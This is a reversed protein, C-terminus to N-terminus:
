KLLSQSPNAGALAAFSFDFSASPVAVAAAYGAAVPVDVVTWQSGMRRGLGHVIGVGEAKLYAEKRTWAHAFAENRDSEPVGRIEAQEQPHLLSTVSNVTESDPIAEIDVGVVAPAIAILTIRGSRALSFHIAPGPRRLEPRGHPGGCRPCRGRTFVLEDPRSGLTLALLMRLADRGQDARGAPIVWLRLAAPSLM